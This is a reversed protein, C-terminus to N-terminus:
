LTKKISNLVMDLTPHTPDPSSIYQGAFMNAFLLREDDEFEFLEAFINGANWADGAGTYRYITPLKITPVIMPTTQFSGSFQSTHLDLRAHIKKKLERAATVMEEQITFTRNSYYRLENENLGFIDLLPNALVKNMLDPIDAKRPSPDGSDFYTKVNNKKALTFVKSALETGYSNLNWNVVGVLNAGAILEHDHEDLLEFNFKAVSGPDGLMVNSQNKKIELAATMALEGDTKVGSLDVRNKGLFYHLLHLGLTDTRCILHASIGLRALALATNAANGGQHICQTIGPLNGGGQAAVTKIDACTKEINELHIFHDVFFDPLMVVHLTPLKETKIEQLTQLLRKQLSPEIRSVV